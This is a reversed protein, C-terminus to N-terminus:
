QAGTLGLIPPEDFRKVEWTVRVFFHKSPTGEGLRPQTSKALSLAIRCADKDASSPGGLLKAALSGLGKPIGDAPIPRGGPQQDQRQGCGMVAEGALWEQYPGASRPLCPAPRQYSRNLSEPLLRVNEGYCTCTIKGKESIFICGENDGLRRNDEYEVPRPPM